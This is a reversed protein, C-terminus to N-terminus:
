DAERSDGTGVCQWPAVPVFEKVAGGVRGLDGLPGKWTWRSEASYGQQDRERCCVAEESDRRLCQGGGEGHAETDSTIM